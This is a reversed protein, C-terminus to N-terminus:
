KFIDDEDEFDIDEMYESEEMRKSRIFIEAAEEKECEYGCEECVFGQDEEIIMDSGCQPCLIEIEDNNEALFDNSCEEYDDIDSDSFINKLFKLLGM